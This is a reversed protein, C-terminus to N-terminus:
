YRAFRFCTKSSRRPDLRIGSIEMVEGDDGNEFVLGGAAEEFDPLANGGEVEFWVRNQELGLAYIGWFDRRYEFLLKRLFKVQTSFITYCYLLDWKYPNSKNQVLFDRIKLFYNGDYLDNLNFLM